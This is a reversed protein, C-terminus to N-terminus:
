RPCDSRSPPCRGHDPERARDRAAIRDVVEQLREPLAAEVVDKTEERLRAGIKKVIRYQSM